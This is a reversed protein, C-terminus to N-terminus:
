RPRPRELFEWAAALMARIEDPLREDAPVRFSRLLAEALVIGEQLALQRETVQPARALFEARFIAALRELEPGNGPDRLPEQRLKCLFTAADMAADGLCLGDWDVLSLGHEDGVMQKHRFCGHAPVFSEPEATSREALRALLDRFEGLPLGEVAKARLADLDQELRELFSISTRKRAPRIGSLQLEVLSRAAVVMCRELRELDVGPPLPRGRELCRVWDSLDRQGPAESLLLLRLEEDYGLPQPVRLSSAGRVASWLASLERYTERGRHDAFLKAYFSRSPTGSDAFHATLRLLKFPKYQKLECDLRELAGGSRCESLYPALLARADGTIEGLAPLCPDMPFFRLGLDLEAVHLAPQRFPAVQPHVRATVRSEGLLSEATAPALGLLVYEREPAGSREIGVRYIVEIRGARTAARTRRLKAKCSTVRIPEDTLRGLERRFVDLMHADDALRGFLERRGEPAALPVKGRKPQVSV